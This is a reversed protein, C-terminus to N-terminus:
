FRCVLGVSQYSLCFNIKVGRSGSDTLGTNYLSIAKTAHDRSTTVFPISILALGVGIGALGWSPKAGSLAQGIPYGILFGGAYGFIFAGTASSNANKMEAYANPNSELVKMLQNPRIPKGSIEYHNGVISITDTRTQSQAQYFSISFLLVVFILKKM